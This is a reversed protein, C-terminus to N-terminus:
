LNTQWRRFHVLTADMRQTYNWGEHFTEFIHRLQAENLGYLHAVVADLEHIKDDKDDEDLEGYSVGVAAAWDAFRDDPCALRGALAVTRDWLRSTRPPRPIPLPNLVHFTLHNEVFLRAYWDLPLSSMVGLLFAQDREDGRRWLLQPALHVVFVKPPLLAVRVTRTDNSRTMDRFAIRAKWCSLTKPSALTKEPLGFFASRKSKSSRRRTAALAACTSKEDAWGYHTGTDPQWLDFSEGKFVPWSGRQESGFTMLYKDASAHLETVPVACWSQSSDDFDPAKRMQTFSEASGQNGLLPVIVSKTWSLLGAVPIQAAPRTLGETYRSLSNFPGRLSITGGNSPPRKVFSVLAITYRHEMDDFAWGARNILYVVDQFEGNKLVEVRFDTSGKAAMASRPLVVSVRGTSARVLTWFRWCAAKYLDPDGTGMGPYPSNVLMTRLLLAEAIESDLQRVLDPRKSRLSKIAKQQEQQKLSHFGPHHRAWFSREEVKAKEWPPNGIIVDFGPRDRLFVEPFAIPFHFPPLEVLLQRGKQPADSELISPLNGIWFTGFQAFERSLEDSISAATLVDFLAAAPLVSERAEVAARRAATIEAANADSLQALRSLANQAPGLFEETQAV